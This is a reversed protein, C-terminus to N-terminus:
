LKQSYILMTYNIKCACDITSHHLCLCSLLQERHCVRLLIGSVQDRGQRDRRDDGIGHDTQQRPVDGRHHADRGHQAGHPEEGIQRQPAGNQLM